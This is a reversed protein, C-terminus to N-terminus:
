SYSWWVTDDAVLLFLAYSPTFYRLASQGRAAHSEGPGTGCSAPWSPGFSTIPLSIPGPWGKVLVTKNLSAVVAIREMMDVMKSPVLSCNSADTMEFAAWHEVCVGDLFPVMGMGDDAPFGANADHYQALGNGIVQVSGNPKAANLALSQALVVANVATNLAANRDSSMNAYPSALTGDAFVGDFVTPARQLVGLPIDVQKDSLLFPM